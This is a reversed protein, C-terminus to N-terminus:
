YFCNESAILLKMENLARALPHARVAVYRTRICGGFGSYFSVSGRTGLGAFDFTLGKRASEKIAEWLLLSIASNGSDASRTSLLYFSATADWVCFNAAVVKQTEKDSAVLIRGRQRELSASVIRRCITRNLENSVGKEALNREFFEVFAAADTWEAVVFRDQGRRVNNRTKHLMQRWLIEICGPTIEHTFQVFARFGLEQFAIVDTVGGHCKVYQWSADPLKELLERTIERRKLFRTNPSGTGEDVAPGLFHTLTPMRITKMGFRRSKSFPLRGITRGGSIVEAIEFSGGTAVDLWWEEHFITPVLPDYPLTKERNPKAAGSPAVQQSGEIAPEHVPISEHM